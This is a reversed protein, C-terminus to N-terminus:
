LRCSQCVKLIAIERSEFAVHISSFAFFGNRVDNIDELGEEAEPSNSPRNEVILSLWQSPGFPPRDSSM